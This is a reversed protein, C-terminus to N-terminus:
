NNNKNKLDFLRALDSYNINLDAPYREVEEICSYKDWSFSQLNGVQNHARKM